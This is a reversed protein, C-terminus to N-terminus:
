NQLTGSPKEELPAPATPEAPPEQAAPLEPAAPEAPPPAVPLVAAEAIAPAAPALAEPTDPRRAAPFRGLMLRAFRGSVWALGNLIHMSILALFLGALFALAAELPTDISYVQNGILDIQMPFIAFTLPATLFAGTLAALTVIVVFSLLGLPFKVLLYVLSKWTVPNVLYSVFQAWIGQPREGPPQMPPIDERLLWIAMQREFAAFGWWGALVVLLILIGVWLILLTVGLSLGVVLFIFYFLGLPFALLLYLANLYSQGNLFVGFFKALPNPSATM